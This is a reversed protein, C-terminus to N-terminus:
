TYLGGGETARPPGAIVRRLRPVLGPPAAVWWRATVGRDTFQSVLAPSREESSDSDSLDAREQDADEFEATSEDVSSAEGDPSPEAGPPERAAELQTVLSECMLEDLQREHEGAPLALLVSGSGMGRALELCARVTSRVVSEDYDEQGGLGLLVLREVPARHGGPVLVKEGRKGEYFGSRLLRSLRGSERWDLLGGLGQLPRQDRFVPVIGLELRERGAGARVGSLLARELPEVELAMDWRLAAGM